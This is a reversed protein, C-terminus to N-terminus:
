IQKLTQQLTVTKAERFFSIILFFADKKITGKKTQQIKRM